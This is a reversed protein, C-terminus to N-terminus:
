LEIPGWYGAPEITATSVFEAGCENLHLDWKTHTIPVNIRIYGGKWWSDFGHYWDIDFVFNTIRPDFTV